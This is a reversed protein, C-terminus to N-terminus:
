PQVEPAIGLRKITEIYDRVAVELDDYRPSYGLERRARDIDYVLYYQLPGIPKLGPGIEIPVKGYISDLIEILHRFSEGKGTGIHFVRHAMNEAFCAKVVGNAVDRVYIMDVKEDGGQPIKLPKGLMASEIIKSHLATPGHRAQKGPGWVWAFRLVVVDLGYIRQYSLAMNEGFYKTAGYVSSVSMADKPYDEDVPKYTPYAYEGKPMALVAISSSYVVRKVDLLRAAELINMTGDVHVKYRMFVNAELQLPMLAALHIIRDIRYYKITHIITPLDLVDGAVCEVKDAIDKILTTNVAADYTVVRIGQEFLERTVWAGIVGLGGTVLVASM